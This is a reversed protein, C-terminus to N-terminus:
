LKANLFKVFSTVLSRHGNDCCWKKFKWAEAQVDIKKYAPNAALADLIENTMLEGPKAPAIKQSPFFKNRQWHRLAATWSKIGNGYGTKFGNMLWSDYVAEADSDPLNMKATFSRIESLTPMGKPLKEGNNERQEDYETVGPLQRQNLHKIEKKSPM